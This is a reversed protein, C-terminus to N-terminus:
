DNQTEQCMIKLMAKLVENMRECLGNCKPNYPTTFLQKVSVLRNFERMMDSTFQSCRDNLMETPFGVRAFIDLLAEAVRETEIRPLAVAEPYRTAYDVVTLIYRNGRESVPTIPGILDVAVRHFPVDIIPMQGLPVKTVRGKPISKQCIDCSRCFRTIDSTIGPWYFSTMIRDETKKASLHGGVISEHALEMVRKRFTSPVVIQLTEVINSGRKQEFIRYLVGKRDEYRYKHGGKTMLEKNILTHSWLKNLSTDEKQARKLSDVNIEANCSPTPVNLANIPQEAKKAQARTMVAAVKSEQISTKPEQHKTWNPDPKDLVGPINGLVLDCIISKPVMVEIEGKYYPTNISIKATPVIKAQGDITIM